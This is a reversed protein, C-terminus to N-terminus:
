FNFRGLLDWVSQERDACDNLIRNLLAADMPQRQKCMKSARLAFERWVDGAQTMRDSAESLLDSGLERAAEQLFCAYLFRFGAGGTGIEEQMRVIHALYLRLRHPDDNKERAVINRGLYRIGRLGIVPLPAGTMFRRNTRIAKRVVRPFDMPPPPAAIYYLLGRSALAGTAFRAKELDAKGCLRSTEFIPDSLCYSGGERGYIILNHANFHFRMEPPFYPFWFASAQLGVLFGRDLLEDLRRSGAEPRRFSEAAMRVGLQRQLGRRVAGPPMRYSILPQGAIKVIPLYAFALCGALGFAMAESLPLGYHTLLSSMVGSECHAAQRHVFPRTPAIM